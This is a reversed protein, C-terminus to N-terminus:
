IEIPEGIPATIELGALWRQIYTADLINLGDNNSDGLLHIMGDDDTVLGALCRQICNADLVTVKGDNDADGYILPVETERLIVSAFNTSTTQGDENKGILSIVNMGDSETDMAKYPVVLDATGDVITLTKLFLGNVYVNVSATDGAANVRVVANKGKRIVGDAPAHESYTDEAANLLEIALGETDRTYPHASQDTYTSELLTDVTAFQEDLWAIRNTMYSRYVETDRTYGRAIIWTDKRDWVANDALGSERLYEIETDLVGGKDILTQLFPRIQWYKEAAKCIFLPDDIFDKFLNQVNQSANTHPLKWGKPINGVMLSGCGWDFDWVPGFEILGDIDKYAFRSKYVADDNGTIEMVLWYAAMSDLDALQSYHMPGNDTDAYGDESRYANEFDQWYNTVYAMMESDTNLFEPSKMMVKLGAKTTFKSVEDYENSLEFLYGGSIDDEAEYYDSVIYEVDNFTFKGKSVWSLDEKLQDELASKDLTNGKKKEAKVVASAIDEAEGEWDFVEVRGDGVRIHECLQYNGIYEGNLIVDTWVSQMTTLGLQESIKFATDSRLLSEDLYNALLVWHKNKGMGFLDTKKDLKLKYPKKDWGWSSNGRGKINIEGAYMASESETNNQIFMDGSLYEEKSTISQGGETNIYIVPLKSFYVADEDVLTDGDYAKVYIWKEYYDSRLTFGEIEVEDKGVFYKLDYGGPNSVTLTGGTILYTKDIGFVPEEDEAAASPAMVVACAIMIVCMLISVTKKFMM